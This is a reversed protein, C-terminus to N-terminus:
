KKVKKVLNLTDQILPKTKNILSDAMETKPKTDQLREAKKDTYAICTMLAYM